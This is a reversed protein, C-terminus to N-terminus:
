YYVVIYKDPADYGLERAKALCAEKQTDLSTGSEAQEETSVRTYISVTKM